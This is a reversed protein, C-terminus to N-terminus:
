SRVMSLDFHLELFQELFGHSFFFFLVCFLFFVICSYIFLCASKLELMDIIINVYAIWICLNASYILFTVCSYATYMFSM